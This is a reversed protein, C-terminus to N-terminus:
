GRRFFERISDVVAELQEQRLGPYIPLSLGEDALAEAVPFSGPTHGLHEYAPALHPPTPYHRGTGIEREALFAALAAPQATRVVYLYWVPSSAAGVPPLRLDGVGTLAEDYLAAIQRREENWGDLHPLKRLLIAAQVTDLRATYGVCQHDYKAKEGHERLAHVSRAVAEDDTVLAGADGMAGLNKSPYFSFAAAAGAAGARLDDREAGHAQCADELVVLERAGTIAGIRTMDALQGYLHVPIVFRTRSGASAELADPDLCYDSESVDVPVPTGGAQVVAEFTAAFTMAPVIVEDGSEIGLALLGLRLADLGSAVGVCHRVGCYAAFATEFAAVEPGNTFAGTEILQSVASLLEVKMPEHIPGLDLLPASANTARM